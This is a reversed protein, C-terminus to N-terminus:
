YAKNTNTHLTIKRILLGVTTSTLSIYVYLTHITVIPIVYTLTIVM